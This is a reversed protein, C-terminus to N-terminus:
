GSVTEAGGCRTKSEGYGLYGLPERFSGIMASLDDRNLWKGTHRVKQAQGLSQLSEHKLWDHLEKFDTARRVDKDEQNTESNM